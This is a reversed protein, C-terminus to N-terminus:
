KIAKIKVRYSVHSHTEMDSLPVIKKVNLKAEGSSSIWEFIAQFKFSFLKNQKPVSILELETM